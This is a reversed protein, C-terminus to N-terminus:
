QQSVETKEQTKAPKLTSIKKMVLSVREKIELLALSEIFFSTYYVEVIKVFLIFILEPRGSFHFDINLDTLQDENSSAKIYPAHIKIFKTIDDSSFNNLVNEIADGFAPVCGIAAEELTTAEIFDSSKISKLSKGLSSGLKRFLSWGIDFSAKVPVQRFEFKLDKIEIQVPYEM